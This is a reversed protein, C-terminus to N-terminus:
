REPRWVPVKITESRPEFAVELRMDLPLAEPIPEIELLNGMMRVGEDLEVLAIVYPERPFGPAARHNIVYSLLRGKGSARFWEVEQTPDGPMFPRPPFYAVGSSKGRQLWLEEDNAKDWFRQTEPTPVPVPKASMPDSV